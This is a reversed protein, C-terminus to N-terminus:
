DPSNSHLTYVGNNVHGYSWSLTGTGYFRIRFWDHETRHCACLFYVEHKNTLDISEIDDWEAPKHWIGDKDTHSGYNSYNACSKTTVPSYGTVGTPATYVGDKTVELPIVNGNYNNGITYRKDGKYLAM